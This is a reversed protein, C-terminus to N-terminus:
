RVRWRHPGLDQGALHLQAEVELSRRDDPAPSLAATLSLRAGDEVVRPEMPLYVQRWHTHPAAPATSFMAEGGCSVDFWACLGTLTGARLVLDVQGSPSAAPDPYPMRALAAGPSLLDGAPVDVVRGRALAATRLPELDLGHRTRFPGLTDSLLGHSGVPALHLSLGDPIIVGGDVLNHAACAALDPVSGEALAFAGFTESVLVDVKEPLSVRAFDGRLIRVIDTLGAHRVNAEALELVDSNDVAYVIRAGARAALMALLGSGTGADMVAMGPKVTRQIAAAYADVRIDDALMRRHIELGAFNAFFTPTGEAESPDVLFGAQVLGDYLGVMPPGLTRAVEDRTRPSSCFALVAVAPPPVRAGLSHAQSRLLVAGSADFHMTLDALRRHHM